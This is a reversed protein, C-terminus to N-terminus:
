LMRSCFLRCVPFLNLISFHISFSPLFPLSHSDMCAADAVVRQIFPTLDSLVTGDGLHLACQTKIVRNIRPVFM